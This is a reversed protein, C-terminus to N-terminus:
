EDPWIVPPGQEGATPREPAAAEAPPPQQQQQPADQPQRQPQPPAAQPEAEDPPYVMKTSVGGDAVFEQGTIFGAKCSDALFLCLEAVDDPRGVRGTLHWAHDAATISAPDGSTDIWGPLVANVRVKHALSAAQAHALGLMGAKAAAYAESHPESQRARTSSIHIIAADGAPMHPICAQSMLFAGSLNTDIVSRWHSVAAEAAQPMHPDAVGANNILCHITPSGFHQKCSNPVFSVEVAAAVDIVTHFYRGEALAADTESDQMRMKDVGLVNYGARVFARACARGIGSPRATGTIVACKGAGSM